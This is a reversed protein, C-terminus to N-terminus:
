YLRDLRAAAVPLTAGLARLPREQLAAADVEIGSGPRESVTLYDNAPLLVGAFRRGTAPSTLM